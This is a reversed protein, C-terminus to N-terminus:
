PAIRKGTIPSIDPNKSTTAHNNSNTALATFVDNCNRAVFALGGTSNVRDLFISQEARLRGRPAKVEVGVVRGDRLQGLIDPCGKFGFKVFRSGVKIAGSNMRHAWVVAPHARLALLVEALAAGELKRNPPRPAVTEVGFLDIMFRGQKELAGWHAGIRGITKPSCLVQFFDETKGIRGPKKEKLPRMSVPRMSFKSMSAIMMPANMTKGPRM